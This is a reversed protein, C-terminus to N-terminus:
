KGLRFRACQLATDLGSKKEVALFWRAGRGYESVDRMVDDVGQEDGVEALVHFSVWEAFGEFLLGDVRDIDDRNQYQWAHGYEHALVALGERRRLDASLYIVGDEYLGQAPRGARRSLTQGDVVKVRVPRALSLKGAFAKELLEPMRHHLEEALQQTLPRQCGCSGDTRDEGCLRCLLPPAQWEPRVAQEILADEPPLILIIEVPAPQAWASPALLWALLALLCLGRM